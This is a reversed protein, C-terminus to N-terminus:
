SPPARRSLRVVAARGPVREDDVADAWYGEILVRAHPVGVATLASKVRKARKLAMERNLEVGAVGGLSYGTVAILDTDPAFRALVDDILVVDDRDLRDSGREFGIVHEVVLERADLVDAFNSHGLEHVNRVPELSLVAGAREGASGGDGREDRGVEEWGDAVTRLATGAGPEGNATLHEYRALLERTGAAPTEREGPSERPAAGPPEIGFLQEDVMRIARPDAGKVFLASVPRVREDDIARYVRRLGIEGIRLEHRRADPAGRAPEVRYRVAGEDGAPIRQVAYGIEALMLRLADLVPVPGDGRPFRLLTADPSLEELQVIANAFDLAIQQAAVDAGARAAPASAGAGSEASRTAALGCGGLTSVGLCAIVFARKTSGM